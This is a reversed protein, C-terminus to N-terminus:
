PDPQNSSNHKGASRNLIEGTTTDFSMERGDITKADFVYRNSDVWRYGKIGDFVVYHSVSSSVNDPRGAIDLTSYRKLLNGKWYFAIALDNQNAERGRAWPGLRVVSVGVAETPSGANCELFIRHSYWSFTDTLVDSKNEVRYIKTTGKSGYSEEPVSKAYCQGHQSSVVYARNSGEDDAFLNQPLLLLMLVILFNRVKM